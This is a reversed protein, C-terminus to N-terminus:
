FGRNLDVGAARLRRSCARRLQETHPQFAMEDVCTRLERPVQKLDGALRAERTLLLLVVLDDILSNKGFVAHLGAICKWVGREVQRADEESAANELRLLEGSLEQMRNRFDQEAQSM